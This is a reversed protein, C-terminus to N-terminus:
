LFISDNLLNKYNDFGIFTGPSMLDTRYFSLVVNYGIPVLGFALFMLLAPGVFFAIYRKRRLLQQM